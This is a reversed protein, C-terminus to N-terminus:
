SAMTLIFIQQPVAIEDFHFIASAQLPFHFEVFDICQLHTDVPMFLLDGCMARRSLVSLINYPVLDIIQLTDFIRKWVYLCHVIRSVFNAWFYFFFLQFLQLM